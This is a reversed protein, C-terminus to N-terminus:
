CYLNFSEPLPATADIDFEGKVILRSAHLLLRKLGVAKYLFKNLKFDGYKDDGLIPNGTMALHRRIQHMRGTGLEIELVSYEISSIDFSATNIATDASLSGSENPKKETLNIKATKIVKYRTESKKLIGKIRLEERIVGEKKEPCGKCVATYIKVAKRKANGKDSGGFIQSFRAAAERGKAALLVGSTDKDLRHVLLPSPNRIEALLSDLSTKVGEGGQVALGAPKNVVICSDSEFLIEVNKM